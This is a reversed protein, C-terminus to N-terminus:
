LGLEAIESKVREVYKVSDHYGDRTHSYHLIQELRLSKDGFERRYRRLYKMALVGIAILVTNEVNLANLEKHFIKLNFRVLEDDEKLIDDVAKSDSNIFKEKCKDKYKIIDTMYAGWAPTGRLASPLRELNTKSRGEAEHFNAFSCPSIDASVNLGVLVIEPKLNSKIAEFNSPSLIDTNGIDSESWLAWSSLDGYRQRIELFTKKAIM